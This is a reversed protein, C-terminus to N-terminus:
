VFNVCIKYMVNSYYFPKVRIYYTGAPIRAEDSKLSSQTGQVRLHPLELTSNDGETLMYIEWYVATSDLLEHEFSISLIGDHPVTFKYYDVDRETQINGDILNNVSINTAKGIENNPEKDYSYIGDENTSANAEPVFNITFNYDLQSYHYEEVKLYYHSYTGYSTPSLRIKDTEIVAENGRVKYVVPDELNDGIISIKWFINSDDLIEHNFSINLIGAQNVIFHYYDVDNETQLNGTVNTNLQVTNNKKALIIDNNPETEFKDDELVTNVQFVYPFESYDDAEIRIYYVGEPLRLKGFTNSIENGDVSYQIIDETTESQTSVISIFWYTDGSDIFDHTFTIEVSSKHSIQFRYFDVDDENNIAGYIDTNVSILNSEQISNNPEIENNVPNKQLTQDESKIELSTSQQELKTDSSINFIDGVPLLELGIPIVISLITLVSSVIEKKRRNEKNDEKKASNFGVISIIVAVTLWFLWTFIRLDM